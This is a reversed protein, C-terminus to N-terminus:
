LSNGLNAKELHYHIVVLFMVYVTQENNLNVTQGTVLLENTTEERAQNRNYSKIYKSCENTFDYTMQGQYIAGTTLQSMNCVMLRGYKASFMGTLGADLMIATDKEDGTQTTFTEGNEARVLVPVFHFPDSSHLKFHVNVLDIVLNMSDETTDLAILAAGLDFCTQMCVSKGAGPEM